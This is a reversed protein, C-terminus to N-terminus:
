AAVESREFVPRAAKYEPMSHAVDAGHKHVLECRHCRRGHTALGHTGSRNENICRKAAINRERRAASADRADDLAISEQPSVLSRDVRLTM